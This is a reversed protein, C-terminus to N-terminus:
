EVQKTLQEDQDEASTLPLHLHFTLGAGTNRSAVLQGGHAEVISRSIVLGMGMGEKKTSYFVDFIKELDDDPVGCGQDAVTVEIGGQVTRSRIRLRRSGPPSEGMSEIGNKMLNVVVQQMQVRDLLVAPLDPELDFAVDVYHCQALSDLLDGEERLLENMDTSQRNLERRTSFARTRRVIEAAREAQASIKRLIEGLEQPDNGAALSRECGRAFNVIAGLPQHLEHGISAAMEGLTNIRDVHALRELHLRAQQEALQRERIEKRLSENSLALQGPSPLELAKPILPWLLFATAVSVGATLAKIVGELRYTATWTTWIDMLHTTGCAFIFAGFLVFIWRFTLDDRKRVFYWLAAPISYYAVAILADSTTHLWLVDPEWYYCGGHPMFDSDFLKAFFELM